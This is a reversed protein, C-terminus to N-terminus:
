KKKLEARTHCSHWRHSSSFPARPEVAPFYEFPRVCGCQRPSFLCSVGADCLGSWINGLSNLRFGTSGEPRRACLSFLPFLAAGFETHFPFHRLSREMVTQCWGRSSAATCVARLINHRGAPPRPFPVLAGDVGPPRCEDDALSPHPWYLLGSQQM